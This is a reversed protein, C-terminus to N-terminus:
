SVACCQVTSYRASPRRCSYGLAKCMRTTRDYKTAYEYKVALCAVTLEPVGDDVTHVEICVVSVSVSESQIFSAFVGFDM